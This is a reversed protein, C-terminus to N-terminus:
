PYLLSSFLLSSFLAINKQIIKLDGRSDWCDATVYTGVFDCDFSGDAEIRLAEFM